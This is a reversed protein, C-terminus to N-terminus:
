QVQQRLLFASSTAVARFLDSFSQGRSKRLTHTNMLETSTLLQIRQLAVVQGPDSADCLPTSDPAPGTPRVERSCALALAACVVLRGPHGAHIHARGVQRM